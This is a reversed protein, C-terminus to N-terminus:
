CAKSVVPCDGDIVEGRTATWAKQFAAIAADMAADDAQRAATTLDRLPAAITEAQFAAASGASHHARSQITALTLDGDQLDTVLADIEAVFRQHLAAPPKSTATPVPHGAVHGVDGLVAMLNARSLPKTVTAVMGAAEFEAQDALSAHATLAVIPTNVSLGGESKIRRAAAKGDLVPMSIDMLILDFAADNAQAAGDAGDMAETVRHGGAELMERAVTRNIENDEVILISLSTDTTQAAIHDHSQQVPTPPMPLIVDFTSGVGETSQLTITGGLATVFRKAISLGLGTGGVDRDYAANGTVFDDFIRQTLEPAIGPGTDAIAIRIPSNPATPDVISITASVKGNRTFKVANGILNMLVLQVRDPDSMVWHRPPGQWTWELDTASTEAMASQSDVIDQLLVSINMPVIDLALMGADYRTIDLVDSIHNMLLRGSTEMNQIYRDQRKSRKTDMLLSLNGLLGNLPTRIEHSMTTLFDTKLKEGALATDRAAVLEQEAAVANSIDRLFGIYIQSKGSRASQISFEVPFLSRDKRMADMRVRGEGVIKHHGTTKATQMGRDHADRHHDPIILDALDEGIAETASFGFISEAAQSFELIIGNEDCVIVGDLSTEIVTNMRTAIENQERERRALRTNLKNLYVIALGLAGIFVALAAALKTLVWAVEARQLDSNQAFITLGANSLNRMIYRSEATLTRLNEINAVFADDPLDILPVAADLFARTDRLDARFAPDARLIAYTQGIEITKVRSYFIDFRRRVAAPPTDPTNTADVFELFEVETKALSWQANDSRASRLIQM